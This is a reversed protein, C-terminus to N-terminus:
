LIKWSTPGTGGGDVGHVGTNNILKSVKLYFLCILKQAENSQTSEIVFLPIVM